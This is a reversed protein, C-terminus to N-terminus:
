VYSKQEQLSSGKTGNAGKTGDTGNTGNPENLRDVVADKLRRTHSPSLAMHRGIWRLSKGELMWHLVEVERDDTVKHIRDQLIKVKKEYEAVKKWRKERRVTEQLVPDSNGGGQAKPMSAELGYQATLKEGASEMSERLLKISNMMWHYDKLLSEIYQREM